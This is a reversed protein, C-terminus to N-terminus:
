RSALIVSLDKKFGAFNKYLVAQMGAERAGTVNREQDDVMICETPEVGIEEAALRYAEPQPKVYGNEFSLSFSDFLALQEPTFMRNLYDAAINSLFGIKYEKKLERIYAFLEENPVNRAISRGVQESPIGSLDAIQDIFDQQSILGTNAQKTIDSAQEFLDKDHGFHEAKFPLWADTVLVGFCDFFIASIV